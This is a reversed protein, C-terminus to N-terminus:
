DDWRVRWRAWRKLNYHDVEKEKAEVSHRAQAPAASAGAVRMLPAIVAASDKEVAAARKAAAKRWQATTTAPVEDLRAHRPPPANQLPPRQTLTFTFPTGTAPKPIPTAITARDRRCAEEFEARTESALRVAVTGCTVTRPTKTSMALTSQQVLVFKPM